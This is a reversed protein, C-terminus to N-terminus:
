RQRHEALIRAIERQGRGTTYNEIITYYSVLVAERSEEFSLTGDVWEQTISRGLRVFIPALIEVPTAAKLMGAEVAGVLLKRINMSRSTWSEIALESNSDRILSSFLARYFKPRQQYYATSLTILDFIRELADSSANEEFFRVLNAYDQEYAARMIALKSGFLNYATVPSLGARAAIARVTLGEEGEESIIEVATDLIRQRRKAKGREYPTDIEVAANMSGIDASAGNSDLPATPVDTGGLALDPGLPGERDSSLELM